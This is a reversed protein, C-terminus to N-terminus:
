NAHGKRPPYGADFGRTLEERLRNRRADAAVDLAVELPLDFKAVLKIGVGPQELEQENEKLWKRAEVVGAPVETVTAQEGPGCQANFTAAVEEARQRDTFTLTLMYKPTTKDTM